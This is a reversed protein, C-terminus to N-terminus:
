SGQEGATRAVRLAEEVVREDESRLADRLTVTGGLTEPTALLLQLQMWPDRFGCTRLYDALHPLVSGDPLFQYSPYLYDGSANRMALLKGQARRKDVAQRTIGDLLQGVESANIAGGARELLQRKREAGRAYSAALPDVTAVGPAGPVAQAVFRGLGGAATPAELAGKIVPDEATTVLDLFAHFSRFVFVEKLESQLREAAYERIASDLGPAAAAPQARVSRVTKKRRGKKKRAKSSPRSKTRTGM